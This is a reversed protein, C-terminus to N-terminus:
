IVERVIINKALTDRMSIVYGMISILLTKKLFSKKIVKVIEGTIFGLEKLRRVYKEGISQNIDCIKYEVNENACALSNQPYKECKKM